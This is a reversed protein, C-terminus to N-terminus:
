IDPQIRGTIKAPVGPYGPDTLETLVLDVSGGGIEGTVRWLSTPVVMREEYWYGSIRHDPGRELLLGYVIRVSGLDQHEKLGYGYFLWSNHGPAPELAPELRTSVADRQAEANALKQDSWERALTLTVADARDEEAYRITGSLLGDPEPIV